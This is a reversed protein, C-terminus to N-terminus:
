GIPIVVDCIYEPVVRGSTVQSCRDKFGISYEPFVLIRWEVEETYLENDLRGQHGNVVGRLISQDTYSCQIKWQEMMVLDVLSVNSVAEGASRGYARILGGIGLKTGGFYRSVVVISDVLESHIVRQLIPPGSSGRPEGDDSCHEVGSSLRYAWCNHNANPHALQVITLVDQVDEISYIPYMSVIFRSGKIKEGEWFEPQKFRKM